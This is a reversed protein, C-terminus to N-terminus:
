SAVLRTLTTAPLATAYGPFPIGDLGCVPELKSDNVMLKVMTGALSRLPTITSLKHVIIGSHLCVAGHQMALKYQRNHLILEFRHGCRAAVLLTELMASLYAEETERPLYVAFHSQSGWRQSFTALAHDDIKRRRECSGFVTAAQGKIGITPLLYTLYGAANARHRYDRLCWPGGDLEEDFLGIKDRIVRSIALQTFSVEATEICTCNKKVLPPPLPSDAPCHPTIMGAQEKAAVEVIMQLCLGALTSTPRVILAWDADSRALGRNVAPVFGINREMTMYIAREGLHDCFEEMMLETARDCGNNIIILRETTTCGLISVLCERTEAPNNWVPVIIDFSPTIM